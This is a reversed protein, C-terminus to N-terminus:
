KRVTFEKYESSDINNTTESHSRPETILYGNRKSIIKGIKHYHDFMGNDKHGVIRVSHGSDILSKAHHFM